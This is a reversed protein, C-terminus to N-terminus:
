FYLEYDGAELNVERITWNGVGFSLSAERTNGKWDVDLLRSRVGTNDQYVIKVHRYVNRRKKKRTIWILNGSEDEAYIISDIGFVSEYIIKLTKRYEETIAVYSLRELLYEHGNNFWIAGYEEPYTKLITMIFSILSYCPKAKFIIICDLPISSSEVDEKRQLCFTLIGHGSEQNNDCYKKETEKTISISKLDIIEIYYKSLIDMMSTEENVVPQPDGLIARAGTLFLNAERWYARCGNLNHPDRCILVELNEGACIVGM